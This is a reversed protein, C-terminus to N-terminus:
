GFRALLFLSGLAMAVGVAEYDHLTEKLVLTGVLVLLLMTSVTYVIGLETFSLHRMVYVWGGAMSAYVALGLWFWWSKVSVTHSSALKLLYDALVGVAALGAAALM